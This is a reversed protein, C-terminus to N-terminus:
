IGIPKDTYMEETYELEESIGLEPVVFSLVQDTFAKTGDPTYYHVADSHAEEPLTESLSYM